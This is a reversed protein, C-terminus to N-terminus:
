VLQKVIVCSCLHFFGWNMNTWIDGLFIADGINALGHEEGGMAPIIYIENSASGIISPRRWFLPRGILVQVSVILWQLFKSPRFLFFTFFSHSKRIAQLICTALAVLKLLLPAM